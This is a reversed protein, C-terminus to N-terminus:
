DEKEEQIKVANVVGDQGPRSTVRAPGAETDIIAGKTIVNRRTFDRSAPNERVALIKAPKGGEGANEVLNATDAMFLRLKRAAGRARIKRLREEGIRTDAPVRGILFKRKKHHHLRRGGTPKRRSKGQFVVMIGVKRGTQRNAEAMFKIFREGIARRRRAALIKIKLRFLCPFVAGRPPLTSQDM